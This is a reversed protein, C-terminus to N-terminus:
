YIFMYTYSIILSIEEEKMVIKWGKVNYVYM